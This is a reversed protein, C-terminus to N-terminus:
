DITRKPARWREKKAIDNRHRYRHARDSTDIYQQQTVEYLESTRAAPNRKAHKRLSTPIGQKSTSGHGGEGM